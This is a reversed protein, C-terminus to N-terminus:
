LNTMVKDGRTPYRSHRLRSQRAQELPELDMGIRDRHM